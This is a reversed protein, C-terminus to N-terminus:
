TLYIAALSSRNTRYTLRLLRSVRNRVTQNAMFIINSIEQNTKGEAVLRLIELDVEDTILQIPHGVPLLQRISTLVPTKRIDQKGMLVSRMKRVCDSPNSDLNIVDHCGSNIANHITQPTMHECAVIFPPVHEKAVALQQNALTVMPSNELATVVIDTPADLITRVIQPVTCSISVEDISPCQELTYKMFQARPTEDHAAMLIKMVRTYEFIPYIGCSKTSQKICRVGCGLLARHTVLVSFVERLRTM